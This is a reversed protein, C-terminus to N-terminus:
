RVSEFDAPRGIAMERNSRTADIDVTQHSFIVPNTLLVGPNFRSRVRVGHISMLRVLRIRWGQWVFSRKKTINVNPLRLDSVQFIRVQNLFSDTDVCCGSKLGCPLDLHQCPISDLWVSGRSVKRIRLGRLSEYARRVPSKRGLCAM